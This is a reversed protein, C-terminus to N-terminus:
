GSVANGKGVCGRISTMVVVGTRRACTVYAPVVSVARSWTNRYVINAPTKPTRSKRRKTKINRHQSLCRLRFRPVYM